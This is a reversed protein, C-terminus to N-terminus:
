VHRNGARVLSDFVKRRLGADFLLVITTYVVAGALVQVIINLLGARINIAKVAFFMLFSAGGYISIRLYDIRFSFERFSYYVVACAYMVYSVLTAVAAGAIGFRPVMLVNILVNIACTTIMINNLVYTKKRIFLGSNLIITCAYVAQGILVYCLVTYSELYKESALVSIMDRGVAISGLTVPLLLLMFYRFMKTFFEKTEGEGKNVLISMYVPTMAYNIPYILVETIHTALNYGATYLGLPAAGLYFQILYRDVYNLILHGFEAWVLPFGFMLSSKLIDWSLHEKRIQIRKRFVLLLLALIAAGSLLQGLFFGKVGKVLYLAFVIGFALTVYRRLIAFLNYLKTKQEARLFSMLTDSLCGTVILMSAISLLPALNQDRFFVSLARIALILTGGALIAFASVALFTTAIFSPLNEKARYEAYFRVISNPMGFKVIAVAIFLTTTVLGMLGYDNVSLIRTLIPFSLFGAALIAAQGIFYHSSQKVLARIDSM